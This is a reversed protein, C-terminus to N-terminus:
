ARAIVHEAALTTLAALKQADNHPGWTLQNADIEALRVIGVGKATEGVATKVGAFLIAKAFQSGDTAAPNHPVFRNKKANVAATVTIKFGDGAVFDAAGDALTFNILGNYPTGVKGFGDIVGSPKVVIFNGLNAVPEIFSLQYDGEPAGADVTVAGMAGNGTNGANAVAVAALVGVAIQGLVHGADLDLNEDITIQERSLSRNAESILFSGALRREFLRPSM